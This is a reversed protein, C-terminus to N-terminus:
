HGRQKHLQCSRVPRPCFFLEFRAPRCCIAARRIRCCHKRRRSGRVNNLVVIRLCALDERTWVSSSLSVKFFCPFPWSFVGKAEPSPIPQPHLLVLSVCACYALSAIKLTKPLGEGAGRHNTHGNRPPFHHLPPLHSAEGDALKLEKDRVV